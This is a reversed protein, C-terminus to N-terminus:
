RLLESTGRAHAAVEPREVRKAAVVAATAPTTLIEVAVLDPHEFLFERVPDPGQWDPTLDDKVLLGGPELLAVVEPAENLKGADFFLVEFPSRQPLM